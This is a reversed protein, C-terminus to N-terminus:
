FQTSQAYGTGNTYARSTESENKFIGNSGLDVISNGLNFLSGNYNVKSAINLNSQLNLTAGSQALELSDISTTGTGSLAVDTAGTFKVSGGGATQQLTGNNVLNVDNFVIYVGGTPKLTTGPSINLTGQAFLQM